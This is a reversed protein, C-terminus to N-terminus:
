RLYSGSHHHRQRRPWRGQPPMVLPLQPTTTLPIGIMPASPAFSPPISTIPVAPAAASSSPIVISSSSSSPLDSPALSPAAVFISPMLSPITSAITSPVLTPTASPFLTPTTSPFIRPSSTPVISPMRSPPETPPVLIELGSTSSSGGDADLFEAFLIVSVIILFVFVIYGRRGRCCVEDGDPPFVSVMLNHSFTSLASLSDHYGGHTSKGDTSVSRRSNFIARLDLSTQPNLSSRRDNEENNATHFSVPLAFPAASMDPESTQSLPDDDGLEEVYDLYDGTPVALSAANAGILPSMPPEELNSPGDQQGYSQPAGRKAALPVTWRESEDPVAPSGEFPEDIDESASIRRKELKQRQRQRERQSRNILDQTTASIGQVEEQKPPAAAVAPTPALVERKQVVVDDNGRFGARDDENDSSCVSESFHLDSASGAIALLDDHEGNSDPISSSGAAEDAEELSHM